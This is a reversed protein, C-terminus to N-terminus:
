EDLSYGFFDMMSQGAAKKNGSQILEIELIRELEDTRVMVAAKLVLDIVMEDRALRTVHYTYWATGRAGQGGQRILRRMDILRDCTMELTRLGINIAEAFDEQKVTVGLQGFPIDPQELWLNIQWNWVHFLIRAEMLLADLREQREDM